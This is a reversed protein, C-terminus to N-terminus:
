QAPRTDPPATAPMSAHDVVYLWKGDIRRAISTVRVEVLQPSGGAKPTMNLTATGYGYSIDGATYYRTALAADTVTMSSLMNTYAQRIAVAGRAEKADPPYMVADPAYLAVMAEVDGAKVAKVWADDVIKAGDEQARLASALAGLVVAAFILSRTRSM